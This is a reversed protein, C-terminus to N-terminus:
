KTTECLSVSEAIHLLEKMNFNGDLSFHISQAEDIWMVTNLGESITSEFFYGKMQNVMVEFVKDENLTIDTQAGQHMFNYVLYLVDGAQNEYTISALGPATDRSNEVYGDPLETIEFQPLIDENQDGSYVYGINNDHWEMVWRIFAARATPNFAMVGGFAVICTLLIVAIRKTIQMWRPYEQQRMWRIPNALMTRMQRKYRLTPTFSPAQEDREKEEEMKLSDILVRRMIRDLEKDTM